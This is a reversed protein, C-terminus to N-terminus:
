ARGWMLAIYHHETRVTCTFDHYLESLRQIRKIVESMEFYREESM